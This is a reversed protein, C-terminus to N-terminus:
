TGCCPFSACGRGFPVSVSAHDQTSRRFSWARCFSCQRVNRCATVCKCGHIFLLPIANARESKKHVYHATFTGFDDVELSRTYQPLEANLSAEAARWDYGEKWRAVLRKVDELPVGYDWEDNSTPAAPPFAALSLKMRLSEIESQPVSVTFSQEESM